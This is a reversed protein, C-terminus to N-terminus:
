LLVLYVFFHHKLTCGNPRACCSSCTGMSKDLVLVTRSEELSNSWHFKYFILQKDTDTKIKKEGTEYIKNKLENM